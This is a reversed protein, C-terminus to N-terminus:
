RCPRTDDDSGNLARWDSLSGPGAVACIRRLAPMPDLDWRRLTGDENASLVALGDPTFVAGRVEGAPGRLAAYTQWSGDGEREWVRVSGDRSASVLRRGDASFAVRLVPATHGYLRAVTKRTRTDWIEVVHDRGSSALLRGTPDFAVDFVSDTSVRPSHRLVKLGPWTRLTVTNDQGSSALLGRGEPALAIGWANEATRSHVVRRSNLDWVRLTDDWGGTVLRTGTRDFVAALVERGSRPLETLLKGTDTNWVTTTHDMSTVALLTGDPNYALDTIDREAARFTLRPRRARDDWVLVDGNDDGTAYGGRPSRALATLAGLGTRVPSDALRWVRLARDEGGTVVTSGDPSLAVANVPGAHGTLALPVADPRSLDRVQATNDQSGSVLTGDRGLTVDMVSDGHTGYKEVLRDTRVDWVRVTGDFSGGVLKRGDPTFALARVSRTPHHRLRDREEGTRTDWLVVSRFSQDDGSKDSGGGMALTRGDPSFAVARIPGPADQGGPKATWDLRGEPMRWVRITGDGGAAALRTGAPNFAVSTDSDADARNGKGKLLLRPRELGAFLWVSGDDYGAVYRRGDRSYAISDVQGSSDEPCPWSAVHAGGPDQRPRWRYIRGDGGGWAVTGKEAWTVASVPTRADLTRASWLSASSSLLASRIDPSEDAQYAAAALRGAAVTDSQGTSLSQLAWAKARSTREQTEVTQWKTNTVIAVAVLVVLTIGLVLLQIVLRRRRVRRRERERSVALFERPLPGLEDEHEEAWRVADALQGGTLLLAHDRRADQWQVAAESLGRGVKGMLQDHTIWLRVRPWSALLAEHAVQVTAEGDPEADITLLRERVFAELVAAVEAEDGPLLDLLRARSIRRRTIDHLDDRRGLRVFAHEAIRRGRTGLGQYTHDASLALARRIGGSKRYAATTLRNGERHMWTVRLAHSLLPLTGPACGEEDAWPDSLAGLEHLLVEVLADDVVLGAAEAPETIAERLESETMPELLFPTARLAATLGPHTLCRGYFDARLGLVVHVVPEGATDCLKPLDCLLDFFTRRQEPDQCQAFAEEFQDVLILTRYPREAPRDGPPGAEGLLDACDRASSRVADLTRDPDTGLRTTIAQALRDLPRDGPTLEVVPWDQSGPLRGASLAGMLGAKLLSTKGAGSPAVVVYPGQAPARRDLGELLAGIAAGRGRYLHAWAATYAALGRFPCDGEPGRPAPLRRGSRVVEREHLALLRGQAAFFTDLAQALTASGPARGNEIRSIHAKDYRVKASLAGQTLGAQERLRRM